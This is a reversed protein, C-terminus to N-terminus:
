IQRNTLMLFGTWPSWYFLLNVISGQLHLSAWKRKEPFAETMLVGNGMVAYIKPANRHGPPYLPVAMEILTMIYLKQM